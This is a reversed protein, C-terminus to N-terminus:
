TAVGFAARLREQDEVALTVGDGKWGRALSALWAARDQEPHWMAVLQAIDEDTALRRTVTNGSITTCVAANATDVYTAFQGEGYTDGRWRRFVSLYRYVAERRPAIVYAYEVHYDSITRVFLQGLPPTFVDNPAPADGVFPSPRASM